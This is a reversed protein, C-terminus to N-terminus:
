SRDFGGVARRLRSFRAVRSSIPGIAGRIAVAPSIRATTCLGRFAQGYSGSANARRAADLAQYGYLERTRARGDRIALLVSDAGQSIARRRHRELIALREQHGTSFDQSANNDHLHYDVLGDEVRVPDGYVVALQLFLAWDATQTLLPDHGGVAFYKSREVVASSLCVMQDALLGEYTVFEPIGKITADLSVWNFGTYCFSANPAELLAALQKELKMPHWEDDQDLFAILESNAALSGVNRAVSVGRNPQQILRLRKDPFDSLHSVDEDSGDDVVILEIDSITQSLVSEVARHLLSGPNHVPIVVAVRPVEGM